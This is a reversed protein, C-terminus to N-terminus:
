LEKAYPLTTGDPYERVLNGQEDEYVFSIGHAKLDEQAKRSAERGAKALMEWRRERELPIAGEASNKAVILAAEKTFTGLDKGHKNAANRLLIEEEPTLELIISM